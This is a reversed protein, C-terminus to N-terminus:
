PTILVNFGMKKVNEGIKDLESKSIKELGQMPTNRAISYIMVQLPKLFSITNLYKNVSDESTNDFQRGKINARFFMTQIYMKNINNKISDIIEGINLKEKSCNILEFDEQIVTDIKLIPKEILNLAESIKKDSLKTANTLVAIEVGYMYKNRLRIIENIIEPFDLHLTPEGNGAFTIVDVPINKNKITKFESEINESILEIDPIDEYKDFKSFGCECYVCNFNCLKSDDPLINIGLSRGLRRSHVPGFVIGDFLFTGM